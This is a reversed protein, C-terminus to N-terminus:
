LAISISTLFAFSIIFLNQMRHPPPPSNAIHIVHGHSALRSRHNPVRIPGLAFEAM